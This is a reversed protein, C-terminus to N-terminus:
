YIVTPKILIVLKKKTDERKRKSFLWKIVPVRSLFPVGSGSDNKIREELGGLVILDQDKVRVISTFERSNIGPPADEAIKEGNFNSQIVNIEMTIQGDGSVLPKIDIALQADIPHYNKIESAQPNQSGYYSQRTVAYYTTEGISLSSRHGNLTSLKPTSRVKVNGNAEMAKINMYFEPLVKGLNLSGFGNNASIIKNFKNAGITMNTTPFVSGKTKSAEEGLGWSIGTEVTSSKNIELIMVEITIVPIPKDIYKIFDRFKQINQSAGSVIFSNLEVDTIIDLDKSIEKPVISLLAVSKTSVSKKSNSTNIRTNQQITNSNNNPYGNNNGYNNGNSYSNYNSTGSNNAMNNYNQRKSGQNSMIEISRHLLPIMVTRRVSVDEKKGFYFISGLKKYTFVTNELLKQLLLEFSIENVKVTAKGAEKLSSSTFMDLNLDYGIDSIITAIDVNEFDVELQYNISDKIKYYYNAKTNNKPRGRKTKGILSSTADKKEFLYYNDKTKTVILNNSFAIKDLATDFPMDKIYSSLKLHEIGPAFVLNKNTIDTIRKFAMFLTDKRLDISFLDNKFSIPIIRKEVIKRPVEVKKISLINGTLDITLNYEKCVFILIDQVTADTFNNAIVFEKLEPSINLNIKHANAVTRLFDSLLVNNVNIDAKESLGPSEIGISELKTKLQELRGNQATLTTAISILFLALVTNIITKKKM